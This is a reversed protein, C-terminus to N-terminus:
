KIKIIMGKQTESIKIWIEDNSIIYGSECEKNECKVLNNQGINLIKMNPHTQIGRILLIVPTKHATRTIILEDQYDYTVISGSGEFERLEISEQHNMKPHEFLLTLFGKHTEDGHGSYKSTVNLAIISGKRKFVPFHSLPVRYNEVTSGGQYIKNDWWDIWDNGNPFTIKVQYVNEVIPSVFIDKWLLYDWVDPVFPTYKQVPFMVSVNKEFAIAGATYLYPILSHHIHVFNRYIQTTEDDFMWPRHEKGGGNEMLSNFAGMQAWRIFVEKSRGRPDQTSRYGGIDSGFNVYNNWASHFMGILAVKLGEFTGDQDGVWGSVVTDRPAFKYNIVGWREYPRAMILTDKGRVQRTYYYFDRYYMDTYERFSLVGRYGRPIVIQLLVPDIGDVKWGDIGSSLAEKDLQDHWWKLAAPNTYDLFSGTGRWWRVSTGNNLFYNNKYGEQYNSSDLNVMSTTWCIVKVGKSHLYDIFEKHNPFKRRDFIFNNVGTSWQSDVLVTGVPIDRSIYGHYLELLSVQNLQNNHLWIWHHHSWEPYPAPTLSTPPVIYNSFTSLFLVFLLIMSDGILYKM